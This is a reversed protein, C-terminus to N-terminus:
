IIWGLAFGLLVCLGGLSFSAVLYLLSTRRNGGRLLQVSEWCMTSFTTYGGLFGTALVSQLVSSIMQRSALSFLLGIGLAGSVNILLTGFPFPSGAREAVFRGLLYRALAGLAGAVGILGTVIVSPMM